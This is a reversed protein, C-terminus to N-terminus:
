HSLIEVARQLQADVGRDLDTETIAVPVDPQVGTSTLVSGKGTAVVHTKVGVRAEGPLPVYDVWNWTGYTHAGVLKGRGADQIAASLLASAGATDGNIIVALPISPDLLTGGWTTYICPSPLRSIFPPDSSQYLSTPCPGPSARLDEVRSAIMQVKAGRPLLANAVLFGNVFADAINGSSARLDLILGRMGSRQLEAVSRRFQAADGTGRLSRIWVYGLRGDLLRDQEAARRQILQLPISLTLPATRGSRLITLQVTTGAPATAGNLRDIDDGTMSETSRGDIAVIRDFPRLGAAEAPTHPTTKFVIWRGSWHKIVIGLGTSTGLVDIVWAEPSIFYTAGDVRAATDAMAAAAAYQLQTVTLKGQGVISARDFRAQFESEATAADAATLDALPEAIGAKALARRLGQLAGALLKVPDQRVADHDTIARYAAFVLATEAAHAPPIAPPVLSAGLVLALARVLRPFAAYRIAREKRNTRTRAERKTGLGREEEGHRVEELGSLRTFREM